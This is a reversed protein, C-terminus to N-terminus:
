KLREPDDRYKSKQKRVLASDCDFRISLQANTFGERQSIMPRDIFEHSVKQSVLLDNSSKVEPLEGLLESKLEGFRADLENFLQSKRCLNACDDVM